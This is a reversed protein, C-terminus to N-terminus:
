RNNAYLARRPRSATSWLIKAPRAAVGIRPSVIVTHRRDQHAPVCYTTEYRERVDLIM